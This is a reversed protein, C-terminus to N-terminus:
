IGGIVPEPTISFAFGFLRFRGSGRYTLRPVISRGDAPLPLMIPTTRRSAGGYTSTGYTASGYLALGTGLDLTGGGVSQGDVIFEIELEGDAPEYEVNVQNVLAQILQTTFAPGEYVATIDAGDATTGTREEFLEGATASWSLLKGYFGTSDERGNFPIYGGMARNTTFWTERRKTRTRNLDLIFEGPLGSPWRNPVSVFVQKFKVMYAVNITALEDQSTTSVMMEWAKDVDLSLLRDSAGDFLYVGAPGAHVIGAEVQAAARFGFAGTEAALAPRVEFDLSTQGIILFIRVHGFIVLLDGLPIESDIQDGSGIPIDIFFDTPWTQNEFVQTFHIRNTITPHLAWWRNKWFVGHKFALPVDHNTPIEVAQESVDETIDFTWDGAVPNAVQGIQRLVSQGTTLNRMYIYVTDVKPDTSRAGEVTITLDPAATTITDTPSGNSEHVLDPDFSDSTGYTYAVEYENADILSGGTTLTLTPASVPADTGVTYWTNGDKTFQPRNVGDMVMAIARDFPFYVAATDDVGSLVPSGWVGADSPKYVDGDWAVLTFPGESTYVRDGGQVGGAGLNTTSFTEWGAVTVLAGPEELSFNNLQRSRDPRLVSQASNLEVGGTLDDVHITEENLRLNKRQQRPM